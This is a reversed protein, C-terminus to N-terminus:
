KVFREIEEPTAERIEYDFGDIFYCVDGIYKESFIFRSEEFHLMDEEDLLIPKGMEVYNDGMKCGNDIIWGGKDIVAQIEERTM